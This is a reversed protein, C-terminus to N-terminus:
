GGEAGEGRQPPSFPARLANGRSRGGGAQTSFARQIWSGRMRRRCRRGEASPLLASGICKRELTGRGSAHLLRASNLIGEDAKPVKEGRRLPSPRECHM